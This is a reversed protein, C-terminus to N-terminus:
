YFLQQFLTQSFDLKLDWESGFFLHVLDDQVQSDLIENRLLIPSNKIQLKSGVNSELRGGRM